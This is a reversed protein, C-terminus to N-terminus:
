VALWLAPVNPPQWGVIATHSQRCSYTVGQYTVLDGVTYSTGVAWEAIQPPDPEAPGVEVWGQPYQTPTWVNFDITSRYVVGDFTREDDTMVNEFAWLAPDSWTNGVGLLGGWVPAGIGECHAYLDEPNLIVVGEGGVGNLGQLIAVATNNAVWDTLSAPMDEVTQFSLRAFFGGFYTVAINEPDSDDYTLPIKGDPHNWYHFTSGPYTHTYLWEGFTPSTADTDQVNDGLGRADLWQHLAFTTGSQVILDVSM